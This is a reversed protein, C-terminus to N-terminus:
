SLWGDGWFLRYRFIYHLEVFAKMFSHEARPHADLGGSPVDLEEICSFDFNKRQINAM